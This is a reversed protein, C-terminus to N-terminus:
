PRTAIPLGNENFTVTVNDSARFYVIQQALVIAGSPPPHTTSEITLPASFTSNQEVFAVLRTDINHLRLTTVADEILRLPINRYHLTVTFGDLYGLEGLAQRSDQPSSSDTLVNQVYNALSAVDLPAVTSNILAYNTLVIPTEQANELSVTTLLVDYVTTDTPIATLFDVTGNARLADFSLGFDALEGIVAYRIPEIPTPTIIPTNTPVAVLPVPTIQAECASLGWIILLWLLLQRM